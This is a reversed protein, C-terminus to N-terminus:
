SNDTEWENHKIGDFWIQSNCNNFYALDDGHDIERESLHRKLM